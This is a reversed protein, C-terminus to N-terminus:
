SVNVLQLAGITVKREISSMFYYRVTLICVHICSVSLVLDNGDATLEPVAVAAGAFLALLACRLM